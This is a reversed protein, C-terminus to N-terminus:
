VAINFRQRLSLGPELRLDATRVEPEVRATERHLLSMQKGTSSRCAWPGGPITGDMMLVAEGGLFIVVAGGLLDSALLETASVPPYIFM